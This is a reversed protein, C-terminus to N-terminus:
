KPLGIGRGAVFGLVAALVVFVAVAIGAIFAARPTIVRSRIWEGTARTRPVSAPSTALSAPPDLAPPHLADAIEAAEADATAESFLSLPSPSAAPLSSPDITSFEVSDISTITIQPSDDRPGALENIEHESRVSRRTGSKTRKLAEDLQERSIKQTAQADARSDPRANSIEVIAKPWSRQLPRKVDSLRAARRVSWVRNACIATVEVYPNPRAGVKHVVPANSPVARSTLRMLRLLTVM